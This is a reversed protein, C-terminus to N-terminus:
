NKQFLETQFPLKTESFFRVLTKANKYSFGGTFVSGGMEKQYIRLAYRGKPMRYLEVKTINEYHQTKRGFVTKTTLELTQQDLVKITTWFLVLYYIIFLILLCLVVTWYSQTPKEPAQIGSVASLIAGGGFVLTSFITIGVGTSFSVQPYNM